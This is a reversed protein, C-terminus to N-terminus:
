SEAVAPHTYLPRVPESAQGSLFRLYGLRGVFAARPFRDGVIWQIDPPCAIAHKAIRSWDPSAVVCPAVLAQALEEAPRTAEGVWEIPLGGSGKRYTHIWLVGRRADGVIAVRTAQRSASELIELALAESSKLAYVSIGSHKEFDMRPIALGQAYSIAMRLGTYSGPGRGLAILEIRGPAWGHRNLLQPVIEFLHQGANGRASWIVQERLHDDDLLAVSGEESSLDMALIKM